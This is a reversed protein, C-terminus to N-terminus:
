TLCKQGKAIRLMGKATIMVQSTVQDGRTKTEYTVVRHELVGQHIRPQYAVWPGNDRHYIWSNKQMWKILDTRRMKLGKAAQTLNVSGPTESILRLVEAKPELEDVQRSLEYAVKLAETYSQPVLSMYKHGARLMDLELKRLRKFEKLLAKKFARVAPTNKMYMILLNAQEENLIAYKKPRGGGQSRNAMCSKIRCPGFEEFDSLYLRIARIVVDHVRQIGEAIILSTTVLEGDRVRVLDKM